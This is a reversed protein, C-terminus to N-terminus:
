GDALHQPRSRCIWQFTNSIWRGLTTPQRPMVMPIHKISMLGINKPRRPMVMPIHKIGMLGIHTPQRLM